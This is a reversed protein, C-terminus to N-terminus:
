RGRPKRRQHRIPSVEAISVPDDSAYFIIEIYPPSHHGHARSASRSYGARGYDDRREHCKGEEEQRSKSGKKM